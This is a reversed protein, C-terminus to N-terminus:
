WSYSSSAARSRPPGRPKLPHLTPGADADPDADCDPDCDSDCDSDLDLDLESDPDVRERGGDSGSVVV